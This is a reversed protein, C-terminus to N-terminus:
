QSFNYFSQGRPGNNNNNNNNSPSEPEKSVQIEKLSQVIEAFTIRQDSDRNWCKQMIQWIREDFVENPKELSITGKAIGELVEQNSLIQYYPLSQSLIEWLVVGYSWVDGAKTFKRIKLIEPACWRIPIVSNVKLDYEGSESYKAMGFDSVKISFEKGRTEVLLNRAALDCHIINMKHAHLMAAAFEKSIKLFSFFTISFKGSSILSSLDGDPVYEVVLCLPNEVYGLFRVINPHPSMRLKDLTALEKFFEQKSKEDDALLQKIVCTAGNWEAKNVVGFNGRGLETGIELDKYPIL